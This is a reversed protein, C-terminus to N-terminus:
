SSGEGSREAPKLHPGLLSYLFGVARIGEGCNGRSYLGCSSHSYSIKTWGSCSKTSVVIYMWRGDDASQEFPSLISIKLILPVSVSYWNKVSNHPFSGYEGKVMLCGEFTSSLNEVSKMSPPNKRILYWCSGTSLWVVWWDRWYCKCHNEGRM